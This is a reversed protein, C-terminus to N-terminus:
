PLGPFHYQFISPESIHIHLITGVPFSAPPPVRSPPTSCTRLQRHRGSVGREPACLVHAVGSIREAAREKQLHAM